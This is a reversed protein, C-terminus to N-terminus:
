VVSMLLSVIDCLNLWIASTLIFCIVSKSLHFNANPASSWGGPMIWTKSLLIPLLSALFWVRFPWTPPQIVRVNDSYFLWPVSCDKSPTCHVEQSTIRPALGARSHSLCCFYPSPTALYWRSALIPGPLQSYCSTWCPGLSRDWHHPTFYWFTPLRLVPHTLPLLFAVNLPTWALLTSWVPIFSPLRWPSLPM